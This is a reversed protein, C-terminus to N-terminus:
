IFLHFLVAGSIYESEAPVAEALESLCIESESHIKLERQERLLRAYKLHKIENRPFNVSGYNVLGRSYNRNNYQRKEKTGAEATNGDTGEFLYNKLPQHCLM